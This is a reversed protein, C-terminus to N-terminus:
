SNTALAPNSQIAGDRITISRVREAWYTGLLRILRAFRTDKVRDPGCHALQELHSALGELEGWPVGRVRARHLSTWTCWFLVDGYDRILDDRGLMARCLREMVHTHGRARDRDKTTALQSNSHQRYFAGLHPVTVLPAGTLAIRTWFEWDEFWRLDADFGGVQVALERPVLWTHPPGFNTKIIRPFFGGAEPMKVMTPRSPDCEFWAFGMLAVSGPQLSVARSMAELAGRELLDDADLFALYDGKAEAIGVNRAVSEGQNEQRIVRVQSGLSEAILASNDTSGDDVVIMEFPSLTQELVSSITQQLFRESNYCPTIVSIKPTSLSMLNM